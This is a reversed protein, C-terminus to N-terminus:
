LWVIQVHLVRVSLDVHVYVHIMTNVRSIIIVSVYVLTLRKSTARLVAPVAHVFVAIISCAVYKYM